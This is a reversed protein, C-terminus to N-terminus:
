LCTWLCQHHSPRSRPEFGRGDMGCSLLCPVTFWEVVGARSIKTIHKTWLWQLKMQNRSNRTTNFISWCHFSICKDKGVTHVVSVFNDMVPLVIERSGEKPIWNRTTKKRKQLNLPREYCHASYTKGIPPFVFVFVNKSFSYLDIASLLFWLTWPREILCVQENPLDYFEKLTCSVKKKM